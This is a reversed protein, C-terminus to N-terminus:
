RRLGSSHELPWYRGRLSQFVNEVVM